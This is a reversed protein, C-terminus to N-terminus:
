QFVVPFEGTPSYWLHSVRGSINERPVPGFHRSDRSNDRNDGLVFFENPGIKWRGVTDGPVGVVRKVYKTGPNGPSEFIILDDVQPDIDSYRWTDVLIYDGAVLTPSMSGSPISFTEYGLRAARNEVTGWALALVLLTFVAAVAWKVNPISSETDSFAIRTSYIVSWSAVALFIATMAYYGAPVLVLRTLSFVLIPVFYLAVALMGLRVRDVLVFGLGPILLAALFTRATKM